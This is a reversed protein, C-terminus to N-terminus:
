LLGRFAAYTLLNEFQIIAARKESDEVCITEVFFLDPLLARQYSSVDYLRDGAHYSCHAFQSYSISASFSFYPDKNKKLMDCITLAGFRREPGEM